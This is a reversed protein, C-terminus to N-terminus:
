EEVCGLGGQGGAEPGAAPAPREPSLLIVGALRDPPGHGINLSMRSFGDPQGIQCAYGSQAGGM